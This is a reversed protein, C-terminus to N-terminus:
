ATIRLAAAPSTRGARIAPVAAMLLSAALCALGLGALVTVPITFGLGEEFAASRTLVQWSSLLGLGIGLAVGQLGVFGAEILFSRRVVPAAFGLARMVGIQRRRERVARILVVGLGAIGILLGLGLYAQLLYLFGTQADLEAQAAALFTRTETGRDAGEMALEDAVTAPDAGDITDLYFRTPPRGDGALEAVRDAGMVAGAGVLWGQETTAAVTFPRFEGDAGRFHYADGAELGTEGDVIVYPEDGAIVATWAAREDGFVELRHSLPPPAVVLFAEDIGTLSWSGLREQAESVRGAAFARVVPAVAAVDPEAMLDAAALGATANADLYVDWDGGAQHAFEPAQAQFVVNMVAIFTVTFIVLAYMAVLLASRVPHALPEALGLRHAVGGRALTQAAGLWVPGVTASIATALAVLLVGQVLFLPIEPDAMVEPRLGFVAAVWGMALGCTVVIVPRAPALRGVLPILAVLALVPAVMTVLPIDGAALYAGIGIVLGVGGMVLRRRSRPSRAPEPLDRIARVINLRTIRWSTLIVTLQSVVLGIVAGSVLSTPVVDLRIVLDGDFLGGAMNMVVAAVGIGVVVGIAAAAMGYAAGELAYARVLHSRRLGTARLTGMESKREGALMVFLNVVLLIGAAVSFGGVTGFLEQMEAAEDEADDLLEQKVPDIVAGPGLREELAAVVEDSLAAGALVDGSNSVLAGGTAVAAADDVRGTVTGPVAIAEAFGNLGTAPRVAVVELALPAGDVFLEIEDGVGAALGDAVDQNLVIRAPTLAAPGEPGVVAEDGTFAVAAAPDLEVLRVDPAVRPAPGTSGLAVDAFAVGLVGDVLEPPIQTIQDVVEPVREPDPVVVLEDTPGWFDTALGRISAGFSDGIIISATILATALLSGGVVLAAEGPRRAINRLALRRITPRLALDFAVVPAILVLLVIAATTM